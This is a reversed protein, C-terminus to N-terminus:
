DPSRHDGKFEREEQASFYETGNYPLHLHSPGRELRVRVSVPYVHRAVDFVTTSPVAGTDVLEDHIM